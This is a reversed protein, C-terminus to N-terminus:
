DEETVLDLLKSLMANDARELIEDRNNRYIRRAEESAIDRLADTNDRSASQTTAETPTNRKDTFSDMLAATAADYLRPLDRQVPASNLVKPIVYIAAMQKTTPIAALLVGSIIAGVGCGTIRPRHVAWLKALDSASDGELYMYLSMFTIALLTLFLVGSFAGHLTDLKLILYLVWANM